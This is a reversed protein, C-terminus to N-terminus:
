GGLAGLLLVVAVLTNCALFATDVRSLDRASVLRNEQYLLGTIVVISLFYGFGLGQIIGALIFFIVTNVHCGAALALAADEGLDAPASHLGHERDFTADQCAYIIDFGAVWFLIGLSLVAPALAIEPKFALWGAMPAIGTVAGIAFHCLWSHYKVHSYALALGLAPFALMFCLSNLMAASALFLAASAACFWRATSLTIEGKPLVRHATRPNLADQKRDAIRNYAMAACWTGLLAMLMWFLARLDPLGSVAFRVGCLAPPLAFVAHVPKVM